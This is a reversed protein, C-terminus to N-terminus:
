RFKESLSVAEQYFGEHATGQYLMNFQMNGHLEFSIQRAVDALMLNSVQWRYTRM